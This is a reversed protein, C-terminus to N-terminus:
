YPRGLGETLLWENINEGDLVIEALWRGYKGKSDKHTKITISKDLIKERLADRSILGLEREEGRIEPTDVGLFRVKQGKLWVGFGLDIDVTISDGDYVGVVNARYEYM